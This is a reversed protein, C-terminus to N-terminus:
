DKKTYFDVLEVEFMLNSFPKILEGAQRPGYALNSPIYLIGKEGKSMLAIGEDWGKIVQGVGLSFAIPEGREVSSDFVTGDLLKGTYHVKVTQKYGPKPGKGKKTCVYILGSESPKAKVGNAVLWAAFADKSQQGLVAQEEQLKRQEEQKMQQYAEESMAKDIVVEWRLFDGPKVFSPLETVRFQKRFTSDASIMFSMSDGVHMMAFAEYIDGPFMSEHVQDVAPEPLDATTFLLSDNIYYALRPFIIDGQQLQNGTGKVIEKYYLGTGTPTYGKFPSKPECSLLTATILLSMAVVFVSKKM